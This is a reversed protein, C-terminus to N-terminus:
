PKAARYVRGDSQTWYVHTGDVAVGNVGRLGARVLRVEDRSTDASYLLSPADPDTSARTAFWLRGPQAPDLAIAASGTFPTSVPTTGGARPGYVVSVSASSTRDVWYLNTGDALLQSPLTQNAYLPSADVAGGDLTRPASEVIAGGVDDGTERASSFYFRAADVALDIGDPLVALYTYTGGARPLAYLYTVGGGFGQTRCYVNTEDSTLAACRSFALLSRREDTVPDVTEIAGSGLTQFSLVPGTLDVAGFAVGSVLVRTGGGGDAPGVALGSGYGQREYRFYVRGNRVTIERSSVVGLSPPEFLVESAGADEEPPLDWAGDEEFVATLAYAVPVRVFPACTAEHGRPPTGETEGYPLRVDRAGEVVPLALTFRKMPSCEAPGGARTSTPIVDATWRAFHWGSSPTAYLEFGLDSGDFTREATTLRAFCTGPCDIGPSESVVRGAGKVQLTVEVGFTRGPDQQEAGRDGNCAGVFAVGSAAVVAALGIVALARLARRPTSSAM